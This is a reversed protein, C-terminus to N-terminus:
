SNTNKNITILSEKQNYFLPLNLIQCENLFKIVQTLIKCYSYTYNYWTTINAAAVTNSYQSYDGIRSITIEGACHELKVYEANLRIMKQINYIDDTIQAALIESETKLNLIKIRESLSTSHTIKRDIEKNKDYPTVWIKFKYNPNNYVFHRITSIMERFNFIYINDFKDYLKSINNIFESNRTYKGNIKEVYLGRVTFYFEGNTPSIEARDPDYIKLKLNKNKYLDETYITSVEFAFNTM